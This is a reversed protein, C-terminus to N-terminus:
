QKNLYEVNEDIMDPNKTEVRMRAPLYVVADPYHGLEKVLEKEILDRWSIPFQGYVREVFLIAEKDDEFELNLRYNRFLDRDYFEISAGNGPSQKFVVDGWFSDEIRLTEVSPSLTVQHPILKTERLTRDLEKWTDRVGLPICIAMGLASVALLILLAPRIRNKLM